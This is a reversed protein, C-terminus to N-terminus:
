VHRRLCRPQNFKRPTTSSCKTLIRDFYQFIVHRWEFVQYSTRYLLTIIIMLIISSTCTKRDLIYATSVIYLLGWYIDTQFLNKRQFTSIKACSCIWLKPPLTKIRCPKTIFLVKYFYRLINNSIIKVTWPFSFREERCRPTTAISFPARLDGVVITM